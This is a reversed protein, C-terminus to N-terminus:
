IRGKLSWTTLTCTTFAPCPTMIWGEEFLEDHLWKRMRKLFHCHKSHKRHWHENHTALARKDRHITFPTDGKIHLSFYFQIHLDRLLWTLYKGKKNEGNRNVVVSFLRCLSLHCCFCGAVAESAQNSSVQTWDRCSRCTSGTIKRGNSLLLAISSYTMYGISVPLSTCTPDAMDQRLFFFPTKCEEEEGKTRLEEVLVHGVGLISGNYVWVHWM